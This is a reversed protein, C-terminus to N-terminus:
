ITYGWYLLGGGVILSIPNLATVGAFVIFGGIAYLCTKPYPKIITRWITDLIDYDEGTQQCRQYRMEDVQEQLVDTHAQQAKVLNENHREQRQIDNLRERNHAMTEAYHLKYLQQSAGM